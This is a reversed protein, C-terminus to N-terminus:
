RKWNVTCFVIERYSNREYLVGVKGKDLLVLDSYAAYDGKADVHRRDISIAKYWSRGEDRSVRLTLNNRQATDAANCFALQMRGRRLGLELMSGECVPDPLAPDFYVRDWHVGGDRSYAMLRLRPDGKQNRINMLLQGQSLPAATAENSGTMKVAESIHFSKGHDDTYFGHAAYDEFHALPPGASHNAPIYIRGKYPGQIFQVAHGPTNAYSRWDEPFHYSPNIGPQLPRHVQATINEPESWHLGGDESSIYWVERLGKGNRVEWEHNNGTNYFLFLRGNTYRPDFLDVVPAPNGAQLSDTNVVLMLSSWSLGNDTSKKMVLDIDGFDGSGSKRGECFALLTQDPLRVIAPIRYTHYGEEGSVFVPVKESVPQAQLFLPWGFLFWLLRTM